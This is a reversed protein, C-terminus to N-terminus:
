FGVGYSLQFNLFPKLKDMKCPNKIGLYIGGIDVQFFKIFGNKSIWEQGFVFYTPIWGVYYSSHFAKFIVGKIGVGLYFQSQLCPKPYFLYNIYAQTLLGNLLFPLGGIGIGFDVGQYNFQYRKGANISLFSPLGLGFSLYNSDTKITEISSQFTEVDNGKELFSEQCVTSGTIFIFFCLLRIKLKKNM